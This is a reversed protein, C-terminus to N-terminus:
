TLHSTPRPLTLIPTPHMPTPPPPFPGFVAPCRMAPYPPPCLFLLLARSSSSRASPITGGQAVCFM